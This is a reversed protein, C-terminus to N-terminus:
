SERQKQARPRVPAAGFYADAAAAVAGALARRARPDSLRRADEINSLFGTEILVAPVDPTLLVFYGANRHTNHVLRTVGRLQQILLRAFQASRSTTERQYLDVLVDRAVGRRPADGLDLDWNQAGMLDQARAEGRASITYVSAGQARSDAHSDAHISVFLDAGQARAFRVRDALEIYRDGDRTLAVRYGRAELVDRLQLAIDLVVDKERVGNAGIAGPDRGGHGADVVITRRGGPPPPTVIPGPIFDFPILDFSLETSHGGLDQRVARAPVDLDFVVRAAGGPRPAHRYRRVLGGGPGHGYEGQPLLLRTNALDVVFRDPGTLFFTRAFVTRDLILTVRVQQASPQVHVAYLCAPPDAWANAGLAVGGAATAGFLLTRRTTDM